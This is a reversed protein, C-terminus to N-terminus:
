FDWKNKIYNDYGKFENFFFLCPIIIFILSYRTLEISYVYMIFSYNIIIIFFTILIFKIDKKNRIKRILSRSKKSFFMVLSLSIFFVVENFYGLIVLLILFLSIYNINEYILLKLYLTKM